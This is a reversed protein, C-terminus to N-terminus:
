DMQELMQKLKDIQKGYLKRIYWKNAYYMPFTFALLLLFLLGFSRFVSIKESPLTFFNNGEPFHNLEFFFFFLIVVPVLATGAWLYLRTYKELTSVQKSLNNKVQCTMCDIDNLLRYKFFFYIFFLLMLTAYLFPVSWFKMPFKMLYFVIVSGFGLIVVILELILNRKMKAVPGNSKRSIMQELAPTAPAEQDQWMKKLNDLEM